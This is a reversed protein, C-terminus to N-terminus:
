PMALLPGVPPPPTRSLPFCLLVCIVREWKDREAQRDEVSELLYCLVCMARRPALSLFTVPTFKARGPVGCGKACLLSHGQVVPPLTLDTLLGCEVGM